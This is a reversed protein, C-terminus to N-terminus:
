TVTEREKTNFHTRDNADLVHIYIYIYIYLLGRYKIGKILWTMVFSAKFYISDNTKKRAILLMDFKSSMFSNNANFFNLEISVQNVVPLWIIM